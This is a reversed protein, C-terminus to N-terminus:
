FYKRKARREEWNLLLMINSKLTKSVWSYRNGEEPYRPYNCRERKIILLTTEELFSDKGFDGEHHIEV